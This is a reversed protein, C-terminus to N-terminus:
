SAHKMSPPPVSRKSSFSIVNIAANRFCEPNEDHEGGDTWQLTMCISVLERAIISQFLKM